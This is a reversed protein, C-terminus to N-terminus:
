RLLFNWFDGQSLDLIGSKGSEIANIVRGATEYPSEQGPCYLQVLDVNPPTVSSNTGSELLQELLDGYESTAAYGNQHNPLHCNRVLVFKGEGREIMKPVMNILLQLM